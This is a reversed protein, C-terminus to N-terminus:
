WLSTMGDSRLRNRLLLRTESCHMTVRKEEALQNCRQTAVSLSFSFFQELPLRQMNEKKRKKTSKQLVSTERSREKESEAKMGGESAQTTHCAVLHVCM